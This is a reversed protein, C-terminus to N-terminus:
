RRRARGTAIELALESVQGGRTFTARDAAVSDLMWGNYSAGEALRVLQNDALSRLLAIRTDAVIAVGELKLQLPAPTAAPAAVPEPPLKRDRFFIPRELISAFSDIPPPVYTTAPRAPVAFDADTEASDGASGSTRVPVFWEILIVATLLVCIASLLTTFLKNCEFRM